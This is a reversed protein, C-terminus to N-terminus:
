RVREDRAALALLLALSNDRSGDNVFILEHRGPLGALVRGLREYLAGINAAENYIPIVVSLDM